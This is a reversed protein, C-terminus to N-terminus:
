QLLELDTIRKPQQAYFQKLNVNKGSIQGNALFSYQKSLNQINYYKASKETVIYNEFPLDNKALFERSDSCKYAIPIFDIGSARVKEMKPGINKLTKICPGCWTAWFYIVTTDRAFEPQLLKGDTLEVPFYQDVLNLSVDPKFKAMDVGYGDDKKTVTYTKGNWNLHNTKGQLEIIPKMELKSKTGIYDIGVEGFDSNGNWDVLYLELDGLTIVKAQKSEKEYLYTDVFIPQDKYVAFEFTEMKPPATNSCSLCFVLTATLIFRFTMSKRELQIDEM